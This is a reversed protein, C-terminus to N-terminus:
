EEKCYGYTGTGGKKDNAPSYGVSASIGARGAQVFTYVITDASTLGKVVSKRPNPSM